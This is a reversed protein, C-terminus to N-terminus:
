GDIKVGLFAETTAKVARLTTLEKQAEYLECQTRELTIEADALKDNLKRIEESHSQALSEHDVCGVPASQKELREIADAMLLGVCDDKGSHPCGLCGENRVCKKAIEIFRENRNM